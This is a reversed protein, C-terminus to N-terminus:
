KISNKGLILEIKFNEQVINAVIYWNLYDDMIRALKQALLIDGSFFSKNM